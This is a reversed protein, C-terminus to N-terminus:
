FFLVFPLEHSCPTEKPKWVEGTAEATKINPGVLTLLKGYCLLSCCWGCAVQQVGAPSSTKKGQDWDRLTWRGHHQHHWEPTPNIAWCFRAGESSRIFNSQSWLIFKLTCQQFQRPSTLFIFITPNTQTSVRCFRSQKRTTHCWECWHLPM